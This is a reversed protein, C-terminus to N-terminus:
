KIIVKKEGSFQRTSYIKGFFLYARRLIYRCGSLMLENISKKKVKEFVAWVGGGGGGGSTGYRCQMYSTYTMHTGLTNVFGVEFHKYLM